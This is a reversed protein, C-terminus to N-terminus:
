LLPKRDEVGYALLQKHIELEKDASRCDRISLEGYKAPLM